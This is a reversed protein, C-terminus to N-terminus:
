SILIVKHTANNDKLEDQEPGDLPKMFTAMGASSQSDFLENSSAPSSSGAMAPAITYKSAGFVDNSSVSRSSKSGTPVSRVVSVKLSDYLKEFKKEDKDKWHCVHCLSGSDSDWWIPSSKSSCKACKSVENTSTGSEDISDESKVLPHQGLKTAYLAARKRAGTLSSRSQKYTDIYLQLLTKGTKVDIDNVKNIEPKVNAKKCFIVPKAVVRKNNFEISLISPDTAPELEIRFDYNARGACGVHFYQDCHSCPVCVGFKTGCMICSITGHGPTFGIGEVPQLARVDGFVLDHIWVSCRVHAWNDEFTRKMADPRADPDGLMVATHNPEREPCLVCTYIASIQPNNDNCCIDCYWNKESGDKTTIGYCKRHVNVGCNVCRVQDIVPELSSCVACPRVIECKVPTIDIHTQKAETAQLKKSSAPTKLVDRSIAGSNKPSSLDARPKNSKVAKTVVLEPEPITPKEKHDNSGPTNKMVTDIPDKNHKMIPIKLFVPPPPKDHEMVKEQKADQPLANKAKPKPGPRGRPKKPATAIPGPEVKAPKPGPKTSLKSGPKPGPKKRPASTPAIPELSSAKLSTKSQNPYDSVSSSSSSIPSLSSESYPSSTSPRKVGRHTSTINAPTTPKVEVKLKKRTKEQELVRDREALIAKADELLEEEIRRKTGGSGRQAMKKTVEEPDEWIVAYRRWLRACRVCLSIIPNVDGAVPYGPARQWEASESTHCHKCIFTRSLAAAKSTDFKSDDSNDAVNDALEGESRAYEPKMKHRRGEYNDWIKHGNPTKKWLYYFRVIDAPKKSKVVKYVEHLESGFKRVGEEFRAVEAASLTPEKLIKRTLQKIKEAAAEGDFNCKMYAELCADIYNPTYAEVGVSKSLPGAIEELFLDFQDKGTPEVKFTTPTKWMLTSTNDCGREIYGTPKEQLWAPRSKKDLLLLEAVNKDAGTADSLVLKAPERRITSKSKKSKKEPKETEYYVVHRGPWGSVSAQHRNGLRSAARPYIRDDMDLVDEIKSHVGLYRFPWLRLQWKQEPTLKHSKIRGDFAQSLQESRTLVPPSSVGSSSGSPVNPGASSVPLISSSAFTPPTGTSAPLDAANVPRLDLRNSEIGRNERLKNERAGSCPACSWGFGRSPKQKLPPDVCLMHHYNSCHACQVSDEPSCWQTCRVCNKPAACLDKSRGAEVIAFRFRECLVRQAKVPINIIKETPVVDFLSIIYRDFLKDFWFCNPQSRFLDINEIHDKHLVTCIGRISAIPCLDSNMTVFLLRSDSSKRSIDKPRYFWNVRVLYNEASAKDALAKRSQRPSKAIRRRKSSPSNVENENKQKSSPSNEEPKFVFEM